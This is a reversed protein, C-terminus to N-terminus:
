KECFEVFSRQEKIYLGKWFIQIDRFLAYIDKIGSFLTPAPLWNLYFYLSLM